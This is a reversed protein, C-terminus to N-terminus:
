AYEEEVYGNVQTVVRKQYYRNALAILRAWDLHQRNVEERIAKGASKPDRAFAEVDKIRDLIAFYSRNEETIPVKPHRLGVSYQNNSRSVKNSVIVTYSPGRVEIGLDTLANSGRTYGGDRLYLYNVYDNDTTGPRGYVGKKFRDIRGAKCLRSLEVNLTPAQTSDVGLSQRLEGTTFVPHRRLYKLIRDQYMRVAGNQEHSQRIVM